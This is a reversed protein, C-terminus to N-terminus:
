IHILSLFYDMAFRHPNEKYFAGWYKGVGRILNEKPDKVLDKRRVSKTIM